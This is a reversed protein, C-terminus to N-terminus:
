QLRDISEKLLKKKEIRFLLGIREEEEQLSSKSSSYRKLIERDENLSTPKSALELEVATRAALRARRENEPNVQAAFNGISEGAEQWEQETSVLAGLAQIVAPDIGVARSLVVGGRPNGESTGDDEKSTCTDTPLM